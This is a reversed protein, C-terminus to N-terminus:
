KNLTKKALPHHDHMAQTLRQATVHTYIQTTALNAHGLLDQLTRLDAGNELLHTAFAHRLVHPSVHDARLGAARALAKIQLFASVRSLHGSKGRSPFLFVSGELAEGADAMYATIARQAAGGVPVLRERGGKGKIHLLLPEGRLAQQRLSVLESIRLGTGYLLEVLAKLRLAGTKGAEVQADLAAFLADVDELSLSKPLPRGIKPTKTRTAALDERMGESALFRHFQRLASLKRARTTPALGAKALKAMCTDVGQQDAHILGGDVWASMQVLDASYAKVTNESAGREAELMDCFREIWLTDSAPQATQTAM